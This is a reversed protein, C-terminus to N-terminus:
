RPELKPRFISGAWGRWGALRHKWEPVGVPAQGTTQEIIRAILTPPVELESAAHAYSMAVRMDEVMDGCAVCSSLHGDVATALPEALLGDLFEPLLLDTQECTMLNM